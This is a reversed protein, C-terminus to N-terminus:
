PPFKTATYMEKSSWSRWEMLRKRRAITEPFILTNQSFAYEKFMYSPFTVCRLLSKKTGKVNMVLVNYLLTDLSISREPLAAYPTSAQDLSFASAGSQADQVVNEEEEEQQQQAEADPAQLPEVLPVPAAFDADGSIFSPVTVHRSKHRSLKRDLFDELPPGHETARVMSSITDMFKSFGNPDKDSDWTVANLKFKDISAM